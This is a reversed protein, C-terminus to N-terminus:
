LNNKKRSLALFEACLKGKLLTEMMTTNGGPHNLSNEDQTKDHIDGSHAASAEPVIISIVVDKTGKSSHGM